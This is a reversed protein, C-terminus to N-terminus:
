ADYESDPTLRGESSTGQSYTSGRSSDLGNAGESDVEGLCDFSDTRRDYLLADVDRTHTIGQHSGSSRGDDAMLLPHADLTDGSAAFGIAYRIPDSAMSQNADSRESRNVSPTRQQSPTPQPSTTPPHVIASRFGVSRKHLFFMILCTPIIDLPMYIAFFWPPTVANELATQVPNLVM